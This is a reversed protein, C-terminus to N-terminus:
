IIIKLQSSWGIDPREFSITGNKSEIIEKTIGLGLGSGIGVFLSDEPNLRNELGRYLKGDPDAFFAKFVESYYEESLGIGTDRIIIVTRSEVIAKISIKRVGGKSIVAKISNSIINLFIAYVEAELIKDIVAVLPIDVDIEINYKSIILEFADLVREVKNRISVREPKYRKAGVAVFSTLEILQSFRLNLEDFKNIIAEAKPKNTKGVDSAISTLTNKSSELIALLSKIEHSFILLLTSTSAVLRMHILENEKNKFSKKIVETAKEINEELIIRKHKPLERSVLSIENNIHKLAHDVIKNKPVERKFSEEFEKRIEEGFKLRDDQKQYERWITIWHVAFRVFEKLQTVADSSIFGERNAKMEFHNNSEEINVGGIFNQMGLMDLISSSPDVGNLTQSFVQLESSSPKQKRLGRDKDIELWDDNGYPYVRFGRYRIQVGGWEPLIDHLNGKSIISTDRMKPRELVMIGIKLSVDNLYEFQTKSKYVKKGLGKAELELTAFGFDDIWGTLTGWGANILKKRLDVVGEEFDPAVISIEFGPDDIYGKRRQGQNAVLVGLQRKLWDYSRRNWEQSLKEIRLITGTKANDLKEVIGKCKISTVETGATFSSWPFEAIVKEYSKNKTDIEENVSGITTMVLKGGLRRCSFRGIGKAGTLPRGFLKSRNKARKNTTAIRMWYNNVDNFSMGIGNDIIELYKEGNFDEGFVIQVTTADADYANKILESLAIQVSEVLKEGLEKLLASDVTFKLIEEM